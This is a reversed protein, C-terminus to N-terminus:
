HQPNLRAGWRETAALGPLYVPIATLTVAALVVLAAVENADYIYGSIVVSLGAGGYDMARFLSTSFAFRSTNQSAIQLLLQFILSSLATGVELLVTCSYAYRDTVAAALLIAIAAARTTSTLFSLIMVTKEAGGLHAKLWPHSQTGVLEMAMRVAYIGGAFVLAERGSGNAAVVLLMLAFVGGNGLHFVFAALLLMLVDPKKLFRPLAWAEQEEEVQKTQMRYAATKVLSAAMMENLKQRAKHGRYNAQITVAAAARNDAETAETTASPELASGVNPAGVIAPLATPVPPTEGKARPTGGPSVDGTNSGEPAM